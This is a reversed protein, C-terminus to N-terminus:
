RKVFHYVAGASYMQPQYFGYNYGYQTWSYDVVADLHGTIPRTVGGQVGFLYDTTSNNAGDNYRAFGVNFEAFPSLKFLHKPAVSFRPGLLLADLAEGNKQVFRAQIDAQVQVHHLIKPGDITVGGQGGYLYDGQPGGSLQGASFEAYVAAQGHAAAVPMVVGAVLLVVWGLKM